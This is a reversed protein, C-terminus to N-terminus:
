VHARGIELAIEFMNLIASKPFTFLRYFPLTQHAAVDKLAGFGWFGTGGAVVGILVVDGEVLFLLM